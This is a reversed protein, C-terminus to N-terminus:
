RRTPRCTACRASSTRCGTACTPRARRGLLEGCSSRATRSCPSGAAELARWMRDGSNRWDHNGIVAVTGLPARLRALEDAVVEPALTAGCCRAPTSTTASCCTSTPSARTSRTSRAGSRRGAGRAARGRAPRVDRGARLGDLARPWHPLALEVDRVVLRRPEVWGAWAALGAGVAAAAALPARKRMSRPAGRCGAARARRRDDLAGRRALAFRAADACRRPGRRAGRGARRQRHRRRRHHRRRRGEDRAAPRPQAARSSCCRATARRAHDARGRRHARRARARRGRPRGRRDAARGRVREAHAGRAARRAARARAGPQARRALRGRARPPRPSSAARSWTASRVGRPRPSAAVGDGRLRDLERRRTPDLAANAGSAVAIQNEGAADVVILAVGTPADVGRWAPSTSARPRAARAVAEDGM